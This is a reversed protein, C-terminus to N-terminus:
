GKGTAFLQKGVHAVIASAHMSVNPVAAGLPAAQKQMERCHGQLVDHQGRRNYRGANSFLAVECDLFALHHSPKRCVPMHTM